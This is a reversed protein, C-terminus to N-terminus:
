RATLSQSTLKTSAPVPYVIVQMIGYNEAMRLVAIDHLSYYLATYLKTHNFKHCDLPHEM